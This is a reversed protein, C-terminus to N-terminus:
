NEVPIRVKSVPLKQLPHPASSEAITLVDVPLAAKEQVRRGGFGIPIDQRSWRVIHCLM